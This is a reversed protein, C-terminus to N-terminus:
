FLLEQVGNVSYLEATLEYAQGHARPDPCAYILGRNDPDTTKKLETMFSWARAMRICLASGQACLRDQSGAKDKGTCDACKNMHNRLAWAAVFLTGDRPNDKPQYRTNAM